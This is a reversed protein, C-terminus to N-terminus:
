WLRLLGKRDASEEQGRPLPVEQPMAESPLTLTGSVLGLVWRRESSFVRDEWATGEAGFHLFVSQCPLLPLWSALSQAWSQRTRRGDEM